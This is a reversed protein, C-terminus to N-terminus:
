PNEGTPEFPKRCKLPRTVPKCTPASRKLIRARLEGPLRRDESQLFTRAGCPLTGPLARAAHASPFHWLFSVAQTAPLPSITRYSRVALSTVPKAPYVGGPALGFLSDNRRGATIGPLNSSTDPLPYRLPIIAWSLVRSIPSSKKKLIDGYSLRISREGGLPFAPPEIGRPSVM